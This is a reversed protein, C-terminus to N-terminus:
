RIDAEQDRAQQNSTSPLAGLQLRAGGPVAQSTSTSPSVVPETEASRAAWGLCGLGAWGLGAWLATTSAQPAAGEGRVDQSVTGRQWVGGGGAPLVHM